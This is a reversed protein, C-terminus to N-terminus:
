PRAPVVPDPRPGSLTSDGSFIGSAVLARILDGTRHGAAATRDLIAEIGDRESFRIPTGTGYLVLHGLLNRALIRPQKTLIVKLERVDRFSEGSRLRGAPDVAPGVHYVFPHGARDIGTVKEGKEMGRYRDRWAGMVDFNELAFGLPDFRTHCTACSEVGTHKALIERITTAGRIDPEIAPVSKPPPPPTEGLIRELVWVGRTVPSTTTGNATVKLVSAQTLLGGYPSWPPLGVRRMASGEVRTLDYHRALRDNLYAIDASVLATVPLNDRVMAAFFARTEKEMSAVLYEDVRYEPYLRDDPQDRRLQRLNLWQDTFDAVFRDFRPDAILRDVEAILVGRDRLREEKALARLREDPGTSWLFHSLRAAIADHGGPGHSSEALFLFHGSCLIAEYGKLMAAAFSDGAGIRALVLRHFVDVSEEKMAGYSARELFARLLRKADKDPDEAVVGVAPFSGAPAPALPLDGFLVRHSAPPWGRPALPGEVEMWRIAIGPHGEPPMPPFDYFFGGDTRIFPVPLGLPSYEFTEGKKLRITTEFERPEPMLDIWGGTERVDGSVDPGSPQRARFSMAQPQHAPVLRFDAVQRVARGSFRVRYEGDHEARFGRPYGYYPWTASRFLAMELTPDLRQEPTMAQFTKGDIVVHKGDRAFFMAEREGFTELSPFLDTGTFRWKRSPVPALGPAIAVHLAAEAADLWGELQVRSVDLQKSVRTFGHSDRDEPLKDRIDLAPLALLDRVRHEYEVRTLRRVPGRGEARIAARDSEALSQGLLAVFGARAEDSLDHKKEPPPMEGSSVRDHLRVWKMRNVGDTPAFALDLLNLEGEAKTDDHCTTCHQDLFATIAGPDRSTAPEPTAASPAAEVVFVNTIRMEELGSKKEIVGEIQDILQDRTLRWVVKGASDIEALLDRGEDANQLHYDGCAILLNGNALRSMGLLYRCQLGLDETTWAGLKEGRAELHLLQCGTSTSVWLTGDKGPLMAFAKKVTPSPKLLPDLPISQLVRGTGKEVKLVTKRGYQGVWFANGGPEERIMRYRFHLPDDKLDPLPTESVVMGGRDVIRIQNVGSDMLAFKKGGELVAVSNAEAGKPGAVAKHEMVIKKSADFVALGGRHAYAIGGDPLRWADYIGGHGPHKLVETVKGARDVEIVQNDAALLYREGARLPAAPLLLALLKTLSRFSSHRPRWDKRRQADPTM